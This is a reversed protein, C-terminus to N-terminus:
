GRAHCTFAPRPMMPMSGCDHIVSHGRLVNMSIRTPMQIHTPKAVTM